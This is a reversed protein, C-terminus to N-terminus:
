RRAHRSGRGAARPPARPRPRGCRGPSTPPRRPPRSRRPTLTLRGAGPSAARGLHSHLVRPDRSGLLVQRRAGHQLISMRTWRAQDRFARDVDAQRDVYAAITPLCCTSTTTSRPPRGAPPVAIPRRALLPREAILDIARACSRTASTAPRAAPLRQRAAHTSRTSADPRVPLLEDAGVAERIEVNAGDLTGITLAGNM